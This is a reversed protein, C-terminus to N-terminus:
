GITKNKNQNKQSSLQQSKIVMSQLEKLLPFQKNTQYISTNGKKTVILFKGKELRKLERQINGADEKILKSLGRVHTKFDPYKAFVVLIKRRVRSTIFVDLM